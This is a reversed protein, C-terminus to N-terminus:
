RSKTSVGTANVMAPFTASTIISSVVFSIAVLFSTSITGCIIGNGRIPPCVSKETSPFMPVSM